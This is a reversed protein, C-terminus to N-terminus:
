PLRDTTLEAPSAGFKVPKRRRKKRTEPWEHGANSSNIPIRKGRSATPGTLMAPHKVQRKPQLQEKIASM